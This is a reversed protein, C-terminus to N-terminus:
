LYKRVNPRIKNDFPVSRTETHATEDRGTPSPSPLTMKVESGALKLTVCNEGVDTFVSRMGDYNRSEHLLFFKM